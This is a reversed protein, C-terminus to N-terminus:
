LRARNLLHNLFGRLGLGYGHRSATGRGKHVVYSEVPYGILRYGKREAAIMNRLCPSGHKRFPPLELYVQRNLLMCIPRIYPFGGTGEPVDFGRRNMFIRKGVAYVDRGAAMLREMEEMFGGQIIECDSDIFLVLPSALIRLAQDMAPGHHLNVPNLIIDTLGHDRAQQARAVDASRDGSGNDIILLHAGPYFKRFSGAATELLDPTRYNIIVASMGAPVASEPPNIVRHFPANGRSDSSLPSTLKKSFTRNSM